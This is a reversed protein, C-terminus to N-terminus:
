KEVGNMKNNPCDWSTSCVACTRKSTMDRAISFIFSGCKPCKEVQDIKNKAQEGNMKNKFEALEAIAQEVESVRNKYQATLKGDGVCDDGILDDERWYLYNLSTNLASELKEIMPLYHAECADFGHIFSFYKDSNNPQNEIFVGGCHKKALYDRLKM